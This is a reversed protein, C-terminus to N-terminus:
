EKIVDGKPLMSICNICLFAIQTAVVYGVWTKLIYSRMQDTKKFRDDIGIDSIEKSERIGHILEGEKGKGRGAVLIMILMQYM